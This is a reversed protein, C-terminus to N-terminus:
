MKNESLEKITLRNNTMKLLTRIQAETITKGIRNEKKRNIVFVILAIILVTILPLLFIQHVAITLMLFSLFSIGFGILLLNYPIAPLKLNTFQIFNIDSTKLSNNACTKCIPEPILSSMCSNCCWNGCKVCLNNAQLNSHNNCQIM